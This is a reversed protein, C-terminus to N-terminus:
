GAPTSARPNGQGHTWHASLQLLEGVSSCGLKEKARRRYTEVTKRTLALRDAIDDVSFGQGLMNFVAMERDTLEDLSVTFSDEPKPTRTGGHTMRSLLRSSMRRSLYVEGRLASQVAELVASTPESKMLYGSAGARLAREAYVAEDYMSFVVVRVDPHQTRINQVLDLGHADELSIDVTAVTPRLKRVLDMAADATPAQGVVEFGPHASFTETLAERIVPHDDVILVRAPGAATQPRYTGNFATPYRPEM